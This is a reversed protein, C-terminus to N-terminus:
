SEMKHKFLNKFMGVLKTGRQAASSGFSYAKRGFSSGSDKVTDILGSLKTGVGINKLVDKPDTYTQGHLQSAMANKLFSNHKLSSVDLDKGIKDANKRANLKLSAKALKGQMIDNNIDDDEGSGSMGLTENLVSRFLGSRAQETEGENVKNQYRKMAGLIPIAVKAAKVAGSVYPAAVKAGTALAAMITALTGVM